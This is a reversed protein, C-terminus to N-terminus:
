KEEMRRNMEDVIIRDYEYLQDIIDNLTNINKQNNTYKKVKNFWSKKLKDQKKNIEIVLGKIFNINESISRNRKKIEQESFETLDLNM